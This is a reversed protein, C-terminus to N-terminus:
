TEPAGTVPFIREGLVRIAAAASNNNCSVIFTFRSFNDVYVLAYNNVKNSLPGFPGAFDMSSLQWPKEPVSRSRRLPKVKQAPRYKDQCIACKHVFAAVDQSMGRWYYSERLLRYTPAVGRHGLVQHCHASKMVRDRLTPPVLAATVQRVGNGKGLTHDGLRFWVGM